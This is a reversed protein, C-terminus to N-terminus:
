VILRYLIPKLVKNKNTVNPQQELYADHNLHDVIVM